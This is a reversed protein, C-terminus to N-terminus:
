QIYRGGQCAQIIFIKPKGKLSSCNDDSFCSVIDQEISVIENANTKICGSQGHALIIMIFSDADKHTPNEREM